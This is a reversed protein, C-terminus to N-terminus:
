KLGLEEIVQEINKSDIIKLGCMEIVKRPDKRILQQIEEMEPETSFIKNAVQFCCGNDYGIPNNNYTIVKKSGLDQVSISPDKNKVMVRVLEPDIELETCLDGDISGKNCLAGEAVIRDSVLDYVFTLYTNQCDSQCTMRKELSFKKACDSEKQWVDIQIIGRGINKEVSIRRGNYMTEYRAM